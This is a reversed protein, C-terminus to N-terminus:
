RKQQVIKIRKQYSKGPNKYVGVRYPTELSLSPNLFFAVEPVYPRKGIFEFVTQPSKFALQKGLFVNNDVDNLLRLILLIVTTISALLLSSVIGGDRLGFLLFIISGALLFIIVWHSPSVVRKTTIAAESNLSFLSIKTQQLIQLIAVDQAETCTIRDVADVVAAMERRVFPAYTLIPYDLVAIMYEDIAQAVAKTKQPDIQRSLNYLSILTADETSILTQLRLYNSTAAAFFFGVFITFLLSIMTLITPADFSFVFLPALYFASFIAGMGAIVGFM